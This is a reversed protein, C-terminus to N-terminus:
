CKLRLTANRGFYAAIGGNEENKANESYSAEYESIIEDLISKLNLCHLCLFIESHDRHIGGGVGTDEWVGDANGGKEDHPVTKYCETNSHNEQPREM